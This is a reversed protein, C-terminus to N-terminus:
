GNNNRVKEDIASVVGMTLARALGAVETNRYKKDLMLANDHLRQWFEDTDKADSHHTYLQHLDRFLYSEVTQNEAM